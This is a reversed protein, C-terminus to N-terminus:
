DPSTWVRKNGRTTYRVIVLSRRSNTHVLNVILLKNAGTTSYQQEAVAVLFQVEHATSSAQIGDHTSDLADANVTSANVGSSATSEISLGSAGGVDVTSNILFHTWPWLTFEAPLASGSAVCPVTGQVM